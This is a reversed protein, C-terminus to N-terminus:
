YQQLLTDPIEYYQCDPCIAKAYPDGDINKFRSKYNSIIKSKKTSDKICYTYASSNSSAPSLKTFRSNVFTATVSHEIGSSSKVKGNIWYTMGNANASFSNIIATLEPINPLRGGISSCYASKERNTKKEPYDKIVEFSPSCFSQSWIQAEENLTMNGYDIFPFYCLRVQKRASDRIIRNQVDRDSAEYMSNIKVSTDYYYGKQLLQQMIQRNVERVSFNIHKKESNIDNYVSNKYPYNNDYENRTEDSINVNNRDSINKNIQFNKNLKGDINIDNIFYRINEIKKYDKKSLICYVKPNMSNEYPELTYNMNNFHIVLPNDKDTNSTWYYSEGLADFNNFAINYMELYNPIRAKLSSCFKEATDYDSINIQEQTYILPIEIESKSLKKKGYQSINGLRLFNTSYKIRLAVVKYREQKTINKQRITYKVYTFLSFLLFIIFIAALIKQPYTEKNNQLGPIIYAPIILYITAMLLISPFLMSLISVYFMFIFTINFVERNLAFLWITSVILIVAFVSSFCILDSLHNMYLVEKKIENTNNKLFIQLLFLYLFFFCVCLFSNTIILINKNFSLFMFMLINMILTLLTIFININRLIHKTQTINRYKKKEM